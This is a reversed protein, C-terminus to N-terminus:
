CNVAVPVKVSPLVWFRVLWTVQVDALVEIADMLATPTAIVTAVPVVWIVAVDPVTVPEAVKVTVAAARTVIVTM